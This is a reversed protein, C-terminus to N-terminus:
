LEGMPGVISQMYLARLAKKAKVKIHLWQRCSDLESNLMEISLFMSM